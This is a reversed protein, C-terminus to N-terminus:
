PVLEALRDVASDAEVTLKRVFLYIRAGKVQWACVHPNPGRPWTPEIEEWEGGVDRRRSTLAAGRAGAETRHLADLTSSGGAMEYFVGYVHTLEPM